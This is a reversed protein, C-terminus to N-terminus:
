LYCLIIFSVIGSFYIVQQLFVQYMGSINLKISDSRTVKLTFKRIIFTIVELSFTIYATNNWNKRVSTGPKHESTWMRQLDCTHSIVYYIHCSVNCSCVLSSDNCHARKKYFVCTLVTWNQHLITLHWLSSVCNVLDLKFTALHLLALRM